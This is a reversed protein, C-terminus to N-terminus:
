GNAPQEKPPQPPKYAEGRSSAEQRGNADAFGPITRRCWGLMWEENRPRAPQAQDTM